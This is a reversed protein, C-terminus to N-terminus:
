KGSGSVAFRNMAGGFGRAVVSSDNAVVTLAYGERRRAIAEKEDLTFIGCPIDAAKCVALIEACADRCRESKDPLDAFSLGLDGTGILVLDVGPTQAIDRAHGLGKLTEIMVGVIVRQRSRKRYADFDQSLPRLGGGSRRGNPPYHSSSVARQAEEATEVMPVLIGEAGADLAEGIAQTSNESVRVLVPCAVIGITWEMSSRNWLGHQMDIVLADPAKGAVIEALATSGLALWFVGVGDGKRLRVKLQGAIGDAVDSM